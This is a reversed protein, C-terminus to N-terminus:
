RRFCSGTGTGGHGARDSASAPIPKLNRSSRMGPVFQVSFSTEQVQIQSSSKPTGPGPSTVPPRPVCVAPSIGGNPKPTSGPLLVLVGALVVVLITVEEGSHGQVRTRVAASDAREEEVLRFRCLVFSLREQKQDHPASLM